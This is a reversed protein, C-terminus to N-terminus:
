RRGLAATELWEAVAHATPEEDWAWLHTIREDGQADRHVLSVGFEAPTKGHPAKEKKAGSDVGLVANLDIVRRQANGHGAPVTLTDATRDVVLDYVGMRRRLYRAVPLGLTLGGIVSWAVAMVEIPPNFGWGFGVVFVGVFSGGGLGVFAAGPAWKTDTCLRDVRGDTKIPLTVPGDAKDKIFLTAVGGVIVAWSGLMILNFPTLFMAIFLDQGQLGVILVADAPDDPNYYVPVREGVAFRDVIRQADRKANSGMIEYRVQESTHKFGGVTYEFAVRPKYSTDEGSGSVAVESVTVVGETTPYDVARLQNLAARLTMNDFFLTGASWGGVWVVAFLVAGCGLREGKGLKRALRRVM